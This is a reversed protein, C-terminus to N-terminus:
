LKFKAGFDIQSHSPHNDTSFTEGIGLNFDLRNDKLPHLSFEVKDNRQNSQLNESYVNKVSIHKNLKIEPALSISGSQENISQTPKSQIYETTLSYKDKSVKSYVSAKDNLNSSGDTNSKYTTGVEINDSIEKSFTKSYSKKEPQLKNVDEYILKNPYNDIKGYNVNTKDYNIVTSEQRTKTIDIDDTDLYIANKENAYSVSIFIFPLAILYFRKM